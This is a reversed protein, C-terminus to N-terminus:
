QLGAPDVTGDRCGGRAPSASRLLEGFESEPSIDGRLSVLLQSIIVRGGDKTCDLRVRQGAGDGFAEDFARRVRQAGLRRGTHSTFLERVGSANLRDLLLISDAFYEDAGTGYCTGHRIWEHRHLDGATGPMVRDLERRTAPRIEPERLRSWPGKRDALEDAAPVGCYERSRPQPWLGHLSFAGAEGGDRCDRAQPRTECFAAHWSAALVYGAEGRGQWLEDRG